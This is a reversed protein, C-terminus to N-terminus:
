NKEKIVINNQELQYHNLLPLVGTIANSTVEEIIDLTDPISVTSTIIVAYKDDYPESHAGAVNGFNKNLFQCCRIAQLETLEDKFTITKAM